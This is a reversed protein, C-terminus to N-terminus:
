LLAELQWRLVAESVEFAQAVYSDTMRKSGVFPELFHLPMLLHAAFTNAEREEKQQSFPGVYSLERFRKGEPHLCSTGSNTRSRSGSRRGRTDRTSGFPPNAVTM